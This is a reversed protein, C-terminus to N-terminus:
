MMSSARTERLFEPALDGDSQLQEIMTLVATWTVAGQRDQSRISDNLFDLAIEYAEDPHTQSLFAALRGPEIRHERM